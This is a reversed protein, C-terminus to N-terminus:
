TGCRKGKLLKSNQKRSISKKKGEQKLLVKNIAWKHYKCRMMVEELHHLVEKFLQPTSCVAKARHTLTNIVSYKSLLNHHSDWQLYLYTYTPKRYVGTTFTGDIEPTVLTSLFPMSGDSGTEGVTFCISPDALNIHKM